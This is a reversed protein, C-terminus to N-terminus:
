DLQLFAGRQQGSPGVGGHVLIRPSERQTAGAIAGSGRGACACSGMPVRPIGHSGIDLGLGLRIVERPMGYARGMPDWPIHLYHLVGLTATLGSDAIGKCFLIFECCIKM